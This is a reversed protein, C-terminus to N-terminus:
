EMARVTVMVCSLWVTGITNTGGGEEHDRGAAQAAYGRGGGQVEGDGGQDPADEEEPRGPHQLGPDAARDSVDQNEKRPQKECSIFAKKERPLFM